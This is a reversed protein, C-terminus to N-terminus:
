NAKGHRGEPITDGDGEGDGEVAITYLSRRGQLLRGTLTELSIDLLAAAEQYSLGELCVLAIPARQEQPLRVLADLARSLPLKGGIIKGGIVEGSIVMLGGEGPFEEDEDLLVAPDQPSSDHSGAARFRDLWVTRIISYMWNEFQPGSRERDPHAVARACGERLLDDGKDRAGALACAFRRLRPLLRIIATRVDDTVFDRGSQLGFCPPNRLVM